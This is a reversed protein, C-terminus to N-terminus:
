SPEGKNNTLIGLGSGVGRARVVGPGDVSPHFYDRTSVEGAEFQYTFATGGDYRCNVYERM